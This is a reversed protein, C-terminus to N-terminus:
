KVLWQRTDRALMEMVACTVQSCRLPIATGSMAWGTARRQQLVSYLRLVLRRRWRSAPFRAGLCHLSAHWALRRRAFSLAPLIISMQSCVSCVACQVVRWGAM